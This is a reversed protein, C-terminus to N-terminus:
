PAHLRAVAEREWDLYRIPERWMEVWAQNLTARVPGAAEPTALRCDIEKTALFAETVCSEILQAPYCRHYEPPCQPHAGRAVLEAWRAQIAVTDQEYGLKRLTSVIATMRAADAPHTTPGLDPFGFPQRPRKSHLHLHAWAYAPGLTAAAFIDCFFETTWSDVWCFEATLSLKALDPPIKGRAVASVDGAFHRTSADLVRRFRRRFPELTPDHEDALLPHALEHYLDPLHLLFNGETLPVRMVHFMPDIGFYSMSIASVVPAPLPYAIERCIRAVLSTLRRDDETARHLAPLAIYEILDLDDVHRRFLRQRVSASFNRASGGAFESFRTINTNLRDRTTAVLGQYESSLSRPIKSLLIRGREAMQEATVELFDDLTSAM